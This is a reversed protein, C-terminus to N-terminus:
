PGGLRLEESPELTCLTLPGVIRCLADPLCAHSVNDELSTVFVLTLVVTM